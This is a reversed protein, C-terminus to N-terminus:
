LFGFNTTILFPALCEQRKGFFNADPENGLAGNPGATCGLKVATRPNGVRIRIDTAALLKPKQQFFGVARLLTETFRRNCLGAGCWDLIQRYILLCM